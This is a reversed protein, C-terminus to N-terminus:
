NNQNWSPVWIGGKVSERWKVNLRRSYETSEVQFVYGSNQDTRLIEMSVEASTVLDRM